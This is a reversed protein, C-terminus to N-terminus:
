LFEDLFLVLQKMQMDHGTHAKPVAANLDPILGPRKSSLPPTPYASTASAQAQYILM